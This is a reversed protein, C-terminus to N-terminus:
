GPGYPARGPRHPTFIAVDEGEYLRNLAALADELELTHILEGVTKM